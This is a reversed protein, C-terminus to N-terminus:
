FHPSTMLDRPKVHWSCWCRLLFVDTSRDTYGSDLYCVSTDSLRQALFSITSFEQFAPEEINWYLQRWEDPSGIGKATCLHCTHEGNWHVQRRFRWLKKHWQWDGRHETVQFRDFGSTLPLGAKAAAKRPLPEGRPGRMPFRGYYAHGCSWAIRKAFAHLTGTCMREEQIAFILYRSRRVSNPKWLVLNLFMALVNESGFKTVVKASDGYLGTPWMSEEVGMAWPEQFQKATRWFRQRESLPVM